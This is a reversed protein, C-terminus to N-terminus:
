HHRWVWDDHNGGIHLRAATSLGDAQETSTGAAAAPKRWGASAPVFCLDLSGAQAWIDSISTGGGYYTQVQMTVTQQGADAAVTLPNFTVTATSPMGTAAFSVVGPYPAGFLPAVVMQYTATGGPAVTQSTPANVTLTFGLAAVM